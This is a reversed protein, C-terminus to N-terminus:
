DNDNSAQGEDPHRDREARRGRGGFIGGGYEYFGRIAERRIDDGPGFPPVGAGFNMFVNRRGRRGGRGRKEEGDETEERPPRGLTQGFAIRALAHTCWSNVSQGWESAARDIEKKLRQPLRLTLRDLEGEMSPM